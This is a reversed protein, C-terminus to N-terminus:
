ALRRACVMPLDDNAENIVGVLMQRVCIMCVSGLQSM